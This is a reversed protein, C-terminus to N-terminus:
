GKGVGQPRILGDPHPVFGEVEQRHAWLWRQQYLYIRPRDRGVFIEFAEAYLAKRAAPDSAIRAEELLRDVEPDSYEGDDLVGRSETFVHINGEPDTRGSWGIPFAEFDSKTQRDLAAAFEIALLEVDFGAEGTTAQVIEGVRPTEPNNPIVLEVPVREFGATRVLARAREVDRVPIPLGVHYWPNEPSVPQNGVLHARRFAVDNSVRRDLVLAFAERLWRKQGIPSRACPGNGLNSTIGRYGLSGITVLSLRPDSRVQDLDQPALREVLDLDGSRLNALRVSQDPIPLFTIRDLAIREEDSYHAFRELVIRDEAVREESRFPGAFVPQLAFDEGEAEAKALATPSLIMGARDSLQALLPAFPRDLELRVGLPGTAVVKRVPRIESARNSGKMTRHRELSTVVAAADMPTGDHFRVNPWLEFTLTRGDDALSWSTALQPVYDLGPTIDVLKDCLSAFVIRGVFTRAVKPDLKDPDEQIGIRIGAAGAGAAFLTSATLLLATTRGLRTKRMRPGERAVNASRCEAPPNDRVAELLALRRALAAPLPAVPLPEPAPLEAARLCAVDHRPAAEEVAPELRSCDVLAFPCRTRFRCGSPPDVPSPLEGELIRRSGARAPDPRPVAALLARTYPHRPASFLAEAPAREVIKGLYTVAVRDAMYRVVALDHTVLVLALGLRARLDALLNLVQAQVSVDLASVPEDAVLLEPGTALARAIAVLQRQGGSFEHPFRGSLAPRLGVLDMLEAVGARRETAGGLDHVLLPEALLAAVVPLRPNLSAYPDQFVIQLRRRLPRLRREPLSALDIGDLRLTGADPRELRLLLRALTSKGCGSEGVVALTEGLRVELDLGDVARLLRGRRGLWLGRGIPYHRRLGRAELLVPNMGGGAGRDAGSPLRRPPRRRAPALDAAQSPLPRDRAPLPRRLPLGLRATPSPVAGPIVALRGVRRDLRPISGLLGITYPHQPDAFLADVPAREVIRGAYMVAVEQATEAVVGLDHTILLVATGTEVQLTRVLELIQAQITVDLATTPEDAILLAPHNVLAMAIMVRQRLGGSLEHPHQSLRRAPESARVRALIELARERAEKLGVRRHRRIVEVLRAGISLVPNLSNMSEQFIMAMRSGRFTRLARDSLRLLDRGELRVAGATVRAQPRPLLGIVALATLSKGCGSEGVLGLTRGADLELSVGDLVPLLRGDGSFAVSLNEVELLHLGGNERLQPALRAASSAM